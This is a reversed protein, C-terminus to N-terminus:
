AATAFELLQIIVDKVNGHLYYLEAIFWFSKGLFFPYMNGSLFPVVQMLEYVMTVLDLLPNQKTKSQNRIM